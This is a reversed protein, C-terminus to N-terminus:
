FNYTLQVSLASQSHKTTVTGGVGDAYSEKAEPAYTYAADVSTRESFRFSGGIAYHSEVIAPFGTLNLFNITGSSQASIPSQAYNYGARVAWKGADHEYGISYVDQDDWGFIKYGDADSWNIRRYDFGIVSKGMRYSVGAGYESPQELTDGYTGAVSYDSLLKSIQGNYTMKIPSKYVAGVTVNELSCAIGANYGFALDQAAGKTSSPTGNNYSVDLAGYQLIPTIGASFTGSKYALPVGFQMLQLNTVMNDNEGTGRYDVGMGATGWMGIGAYFGEGMNSAIAIAPVVSLDADSEVGNTEVSPMMVTGGFSVESKKVSTILAPNSLASEAGHSIALSTGAMARTKAGMGILNDGNTAYLSTAIATVATVYKVTTNM